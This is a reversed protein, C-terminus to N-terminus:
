VLEEFRVQAGGLLASVNEQMSPAVATADSVKLSGSPTRLILTNPGPSSKVLSLFQNYQLKTPMRSIEVVVNASTSVTTKKSKEKDRKAAKFDGKEMLSGNPLRVYETLEGWNQGRHWEAEIKPWGDIEFIAASAILPVFETEFDVDNRVYFNLEDHVNMVLVIRDEM